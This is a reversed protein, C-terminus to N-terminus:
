PHRTIRMHPYKSNWSDVNHVEAVPWYRSHRVKPGIRDLTRQIKNALTTRDAASLTTLGILVVYRVKGRPERATDVLYAYIGYIKPLLHEKLLANNQIKRLMGAVEGAHQAVPTRDPDKVEILWTERPFLVWFDTSKLPAAAVDPKETTLAGSFDFELKGETWDPNMGNM